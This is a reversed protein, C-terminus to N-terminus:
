SCLKDSRKRQLAQWKTMFPSHIQLSHECSKIIRRFSRHQFVVVSFLSRSPAQNLERESSLDSKCVSAKNPLQEWRASWLRRHHQQSWLADCRQFLLQRQASVSDLCWWQNVSMVGQGTARKVAKRHIFRCQHFTRSTHICVPLVPELASRRIQTVNTLSPSCTFM